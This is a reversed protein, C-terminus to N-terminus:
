ANVFSVTGELASIPPVQSDTNPGMTHLPLMIQGTILDIINLYEAKIANMLAAHSSGHQQAYFLAKQLLKDTM